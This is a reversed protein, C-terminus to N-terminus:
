SSSYKLDFFYLLLQFPFHMGIEIRNGDSVVLESFKGFKNDGLWERVVVAYQKDPELGSIESTTYRGMDFVDWTEIDDPIEYAGNTQSYGVMHYYVRYGRIDPSDQPEWTALLESLRKLKLGQPGTKM